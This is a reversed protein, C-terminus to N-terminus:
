HLQSVVSVFCLSSSRYAACEGSVNCNSTVGEEKKFLFRALQEISVPAPDM